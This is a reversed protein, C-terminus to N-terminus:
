GADLQLDRGVADAIELTKDLQPHRVILYGDSLLTQKWNRRQAGLPLLDEVVIHEGYRHRLEDLGHIACIRGQGRARKFIAASNYRRSAVQTFPRGTVAEAWGVYIDFDHTYNMLDVSRGGPPRGGIEGFVAEGEPTLFWEMHTFGTQFKLVDLVRRGLERGAAFEPRDIDRINVTQMSIWEVARGIIPKPRYWAINEYLIKGDGCVTDYTFEEGEIYEEVSVTRHEGVDTIAIELAKEDRVEHTNASGAGAIPKIVLPLGMSAAASRIADTGTATTHKPTRLGADDLAKKMKEKDRFLETQATHMGGIDLAERLRAALVMFPEWLCEVREISHHSAYECVTAIVADDDVLTPVRIYGALAHRVTATLGNVPHEGLGIVYAGCQALGRSFDAMEAPYGPSIFLVNM